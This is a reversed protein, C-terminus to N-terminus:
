ENDLDGNYNCVCCPGSDDWWHECHRGDASKACTGDSTLGLQHFLRRNYEAFTCAKTLLDSPRVWAVEVGPEVTKPEGTFFKVRYCWAVKGDTEDVREFVKEAELINIGAEERVERALAEYPNKDTPEISGGVLSLNGPKNRRTVSLVLGDKEILAVVSGPTTM